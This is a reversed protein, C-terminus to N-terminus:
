GVLGAGGPVPMPGKQWHVIAGHGHGGMMPDYDSVCLPCQVLHM